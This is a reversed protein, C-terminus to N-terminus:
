NSGKQKQETFYRYYPKGDKDKFKCLLETVKLDVDYTAVFCTGIVERKPEDPAATAIFFLILFIAVLIKM